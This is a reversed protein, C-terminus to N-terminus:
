HGQMVACVDIMQCQRLQICNSQWFTMEVLDNGGDSAAEIARCLRVPM